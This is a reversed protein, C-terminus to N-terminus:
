FPPAFHWHANVPENFPGYSGVVKRFYCGWFGLVGCFTHQSYILHILSVETNSIRQFTKNMIFINEVLDASKPARITQAMPTQTLWDPAAAAGLSAAVLGASWSLAVGSALFSSGKWLQRSKQKKHSEKLNLGLSLPSALGLTLASLRDTFVWASLDPVVAHVITNIEEQTECLM